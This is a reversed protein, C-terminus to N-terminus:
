NRRGEAHEAPLVEAPMLELENLAQQASLRVSRDPDQAAKALAPRAVAQQSKLRGLSTAAFRRVEPSPDGLRGIIARAIEPTQAILVLTLEAEVRVQAVPHDLAAILSPVAPKAKPGIHALAAIAGLVAWENRNTLVPTLAPVAAVGMAALALAAYSTTESDELMLILDPIATAATPGLVRFAAVARSRRTEAPILNFKVFRQHRAWDTLKISLATDRARLRKLLVPVARAGVHAVAAVAEESLLITPQPEDLWAALSKGQYELSGARLWLFVALGVLLGTVLGILATRRGLNMIPSENSVAM